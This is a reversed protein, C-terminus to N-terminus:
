DTADRSRPGRASRHEVAHRFQHEVLLGEAPQRAVEQGGEVKGVLEVLAAFFPLFAPLSLRLGGGIEIVLVGFPLLAGLEGGVAFDILIRDAVFSGVVPLVAAGITEVAIGVRGFARAAGLRPAGVERHEIVGLGEAVLHEGAGIVLDDVGLLEAIGVLEVAQAGKEVLLQLRQVAGHRPEGIAQLATQEGLLVAAPVEIEVLAHDIRCAEGADDDVRHM